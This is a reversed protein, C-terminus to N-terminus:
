CEKVCSNFCAEDDFTAYFGLSFNLYLAMSRRETKSKTIEKNAATKPNPSISPPTAETPLNNNKIKRASKTRESTSPALMNLRHYLCNSDRDRQYRSKEGVGVAFCRFPEVM